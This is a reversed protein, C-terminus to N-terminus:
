DKKGGRREQIEELAARLEELAGEHKLSRMRPFATLLRRHRRVSGALERRRLSLQDIRGHLADARQRLEEHRARLAESLPEGHKEPPPLRDLKERILGRLEESGEFRPLSALRERIAARLEESGGAHQQVAQQLTERYAASKERLEARLAALQEAKQSLAFASRASRVTDALFVAALLFALAAAAPLPLRWLERQVAPDIFLAMVTAILGFLLSNRLCVRGHLNFRRGSYDWWKTHFLRELLLGTLYELASTVVMATLFLLVPWRTFPGLLYLVALAGFGYVPCVPGALFGRNVFQRRGASCYLTECVWGLFSYVCFSLFILVATKM